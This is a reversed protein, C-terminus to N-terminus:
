KHYEPQCFNNLGEIRLISGPIYLQEWKSLAVYQCALKFKASKSNRVLGVLTFNQLVIVSFDSREHPPGLTRVIFGNIQLFPINPM